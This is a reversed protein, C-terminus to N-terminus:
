QLGAGDSTYYFLQRFNAFRSLILLIFIFFIMARKSAIAQTIHRNAPQTSDASGVVLLVCFGLSGLLGEEEVVLGSSWGLGTPGM